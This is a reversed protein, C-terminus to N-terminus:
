ITHLVYILASTTDGSRLGGNKNTSSQLVGQICISPMDCVIPDYLGYIKQTKHTFALLLADLAPDGRTAEDSCVFCLFLAAGGEIHM